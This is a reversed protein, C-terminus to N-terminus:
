KRKRFINKNSKIKNNIKNSDLYDHNFKNYKIMINISKLLDKSNMGM